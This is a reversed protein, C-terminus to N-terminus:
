NNSPSQSHPLPPTPSYPLPPAPPSPSQTIAPTPHSSLLELQRAMIQLQQQILSEIASSTGASMASNAALQTVPIVPNIPSPSPPAIPSPAVAIPLNVPPTPQAIEPAPFAEPPLQFDISRALTTMTSCDELLQRFTVPVKFKKKLSLAIQTLSLSDLGLELFTSGRDGTGIKIGAAAEIVVAIEPMLREHRNQEPMIRMAPESLQQSTMATNPLPATPTSDIATATALDNTPVSNRFHPPPDIWYKQREFPYTPLPVRQRTEQHYFQQWDINAGAQWLQGIAALIYQWDRDPAAVNGLSPIVNQRDRRQQTALTTLSQRPGIELLVYDPNREWLTQIGKAFQVPQRLHEAWYQPDVAQAATIWDGTVASVFPIQPPSLRVRAVEAAFPAVIAAMMPSHFAHSTHLLKCAITAATLEQELREIAQTSGSVVCAVPSNIAAIALEPPLKSAIEEASCRVSLMSGAPLDWMLQGRKAVLQLADTLSFVGALCAAVFEGVSHGIAAQPRIGWSQWLQTLAYEIAFLAPQTYRTQSLLETSQATALASPYIIERLDLGLLPQLIETCNDIAQRFIPESRYLDLGMNVHQAGQGSFMWAVEANQSDANQTATLQPPLTALNVIADSPQQCVVFRRQSYRKRGQQLTAAIDALPPNSARKLYDHLDNTQRDIATATKASLLLLQYPRSPSSPPIVPPQELIVHANTGGGGFSSVGARRPTTAKWDTLKANVYFPSNAFDIYPNPRDYNISPPIQRHYLALVTKIFGAVGAAATLHGLNSKISGIGCFQTATTKTRFAQTLAEVEIPDGLATATGHAEIYSITEPDVGAQAQAQLIAGMQGRVSPATFSVKDAGDNNIGVGKIVAYIRDGSAIAEDLRKLVVLGGGNNFLTGQANADFPRCHGDPSLISGEQHLYGRNQPTDIAVGGALALDCRNALLGEYAQIIAVLSTSCATSINISPGQLNLQYSARTAFYDRDNVLHTQFEGFRDLIDTPSQGAKPLRASLHREFYTTDASGAYIGIKTTAGAVYGVTELAESALELLVRAQPDMMEATRATMGFFSADFLEAGALVGKARVYNPDALLQPDVSPDIEDPEFFTTAERGACLNEWLRDISDAGPFRGVMGIVAVDTNKVAPLQTLPVSPAVTTPPQAVLVSNLYKALSRITPYQYLRVPSVKLNFKAQISEIAALGLLSNGGLDFFNDEVGIKELRLSAQWIEILIQEIATDAAVLTARYDIQPQEPLPLAQRDIKGNATLPMAAVCVFAAPVMYDPLQQKLTARLAPIDLPAPTAPVVYAVLRIDGPADERVITVAEQIQPQQTLTADIEGLEIRFGRIKVQNDSRGLYELDGDPLYRALDGTKYLVGDPAFPHPIFREATLEPRNLYGRAVGAGGVYMEGTTGVEVPQLDPDLVYLELDPIPRGIASGCDIDTLEIPRYTVHVTTETIGYMNVLQPAKDGYKAFWPQLSPLDLAEGGFVVLRLQLALQAEPKTAVRQLQRFASPTQNLVTVRETALLEYFDQPSRSVDFPVIVLRGG